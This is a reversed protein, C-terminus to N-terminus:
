RLLGKMDSTPLARLAETELDEIQALRNAGLPTHQVMSELAKPPMQRVMEMWREDARAETDTMERLITCREEGVGAPGAARLSDMRVERFRCRYRCALSM